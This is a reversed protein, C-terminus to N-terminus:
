VAVKGTPCVLDDADYLIRMMSEGVRTSVDLASDDCSGSISDVVCAKMDAFRRFLLLVIKSNSFLLLDSGARSM